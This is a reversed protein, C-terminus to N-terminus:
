PNSICHCAPQPRVERKAGILLLAMGQPIGSASCLLLERIGVCWERDQNQGTRGVTRGLTDRIM